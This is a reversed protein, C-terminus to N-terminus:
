KYAALMLLDHGLEADIRLEVRRFGLDRATQILWAPTQRAGHFGVRSVPETSRTDVTQLLCWGGPRLLRYLDALVSRAMDLCPMHQFVYFSCAGDVCADATGRVGYGDSLVYDIGALGACYERCHALMQEAVDVAIVHYGRRALQRTIRGVGCGYDLIRSDPALPVHAFLSDIIRSLHADSWGEPQPPVTVRTHKAEDLTPVSWFERLAQTFSM